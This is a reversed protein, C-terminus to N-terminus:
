RSNRKQIPIHIAAINYKMTNNSREASTCYTVRKVSSPKARRIERMKTTSANSFSNWTIAWWGIWKGSNGSGSIHEPDQAEGYVLLLWVELSVFRQVSFRVSTHDLLLIRSQKSSPPLQVEEEKASSWLRSGSTKKIDTINNQPVNKIAMARFPIFVVGNKGLWTVMRRTKTQHNLKIWTYSKNIILLYFLVVRFFLLM